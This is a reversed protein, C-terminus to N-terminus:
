LNESTSIAEDNQQPGSSSDNVVLIFVVKFYNYWEEVLNFLQLLFKTTFTVLPM